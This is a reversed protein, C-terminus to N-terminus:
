LQRNDMKGYMMDNQMDQQYSHVQRQQQTPYPTKDMQQKLM